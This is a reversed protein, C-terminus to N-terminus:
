ENKEPIRKDTECSEGKVTAESEVHSDPVKNGISQHKM